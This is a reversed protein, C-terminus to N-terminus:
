CARLSSSNRLWKAETSKSAVVGSCIAAVISINVCVKGSSEQVAAAHRQSINGGSQNLAVLQIGAVREM